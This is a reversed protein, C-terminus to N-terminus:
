ANAILNKQKRKYEIKLDIKKDIVRRLNESIEFEEMLISSKDYMKLATDIQQKM